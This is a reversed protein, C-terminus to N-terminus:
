RGLYKSYKEQYSEKLPKQFIDRKEYFLIGNILSLKAKLINM